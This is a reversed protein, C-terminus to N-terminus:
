NFVTFVMQGVQWTEWKKNSSDCWSLAASTWSSSVSDCMRDKLNQYDKWTTFEPSSDYSSGSLVWNPNKGFQEINAIVVSSANDAWANKLASYAYSWTTCWSSKTGYSVRKGQPDSPISDIYDELDWTLDSVCDKSDAPYEWEKNNYMFLATSINAVNIKRAADRAWSQAWKLKPLLASMLIGIIIVVILLEVLTFAKKLKNKIM